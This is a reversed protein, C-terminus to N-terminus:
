VYETPSMVAPMVPWEKVYIDNTYRVNKTLILQIPQHMTM